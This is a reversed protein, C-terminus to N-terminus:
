HKARHVPPQSTLMVMTELTRAKQNDTLILYRHPGGEIAEFRSGGDSLVSIKGPESLSFYGEDPRAAYLVATLDFTAHDHPADPHKSAKRYYPATYRYTEAIPHHDVYNFERDISRQPFLMQLGVEFGSAVIATPWESFVKRSAPVDMRLNFEPKGAAYNGAMTSLLRVKRKVLARGDLQILQDPKSDLLRAFNTCYGVQIMVVSGDPQATLVKRLLHVAEEAKEGDILKHPYVLSGDKNELQALYQTYNIGNPSYPQDALPKESFIEAAIGGRVMGVPIYEHGYFTDVLDVYPATWKAETGVTVALLKVEARDQLTHLMALALMDDIDSYMDTDFIVNVPTGHAQRASDPLPPREAAWIQRLPLVSLTAMLLFIGRRIM